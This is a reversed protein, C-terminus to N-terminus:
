DPTGRVVLLDVGRRYEACMRVLMGGAPHRTGLTSRVDHELDTLEQKKAAAEFPLPRRSYSDRSVAPLKRAGAAFFDREVEDDWKIADLIRLPQQAAVLRDSLARITAAWEANPRTVSQRFGQVKSGNGM